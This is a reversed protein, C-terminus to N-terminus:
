QMVWSARGCVHPMIDLQEMHSCHRCISRRRGTSPVKVPYMCCGCHVDPNGPEVLRDPMYAHVGVAPSFTRSDAEGYTQTTADYWIVQFEPPVVPHPRTGEYQDVCTPTSYCRTCMGDIGNDASNDCGAKCRCKM